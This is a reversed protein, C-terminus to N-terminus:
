KSLLSVGVIFAIVLWPTWTSLRRKFMIRTYHRQAYMQGAQSERGSEFAGM